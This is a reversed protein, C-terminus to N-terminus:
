SRCAQAQRSGGEDEYRSRAPCRSLRSSKSVYCKTPSGRNIYRQSINSRWLSGLGTLIVIVGWGFLTQARM